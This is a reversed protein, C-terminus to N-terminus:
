AATDEGSESALPLWDHHGPPPEMTRLQPSGCIWYEHDDRDQQKDFEMGCGSRCFWRSEVRKGRRRPAATEALTLQTGPRAHPTPRKAVRRVRPRDLGARRASELVLWRFINRSQPNRHGDMEPHFQVGLVRGDVSEIAEIGGSECRAAVRFGRGHRVVRQHHLSVFYGVDHQIIRRFTSEPAAYVNHSTDRHGHIHQKLKGDNHVAILQMGRCIGLVPLGENRAVDLATWEVCDRTQSVGYVRPHAREGYLEPSVDGGGTLLLGDYGGSVIRDISSVNRPSVVVPEGGAARVFQASDRLGELVLIRPRRNIPQRTPTM